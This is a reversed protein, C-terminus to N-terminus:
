AADFDPSNTLNDAQGGDADIVYIDAPGFFVVPVDIAGAQYAIRDGDPSFDPGFENLAQDDPRRL